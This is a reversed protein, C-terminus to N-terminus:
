KAVAFVAAVDVEFGKVVASTARDGPGYTGHAIYRRGQLKLVMIRNVKPDVIWYEAIKARAYEKRKVVLDRHRSEKDDSVVEMVLDAGLWYDAGARKAHRALMFLVDPERFKGARLRVSTPAFLVEGLQRPTTFAILSSVLYGVIRQHDATPMPLVELYGDSFEVLRNGELALYDEESWDGQAPFLRAVDWAPEPESALAFSGNGSGRRPIKAKMLAKIM